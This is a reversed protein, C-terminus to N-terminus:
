KHNVITVCTRKGVKINIRSFCNRCTKQGKGEVPYGCAPCRKGNSRTPKKWKKNKGM